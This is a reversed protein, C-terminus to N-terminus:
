DLKGLVYNRERPYKLRKLIRNRLEESQTNKGKITLARFARSGFEMYNSVAKTSFRNLGLKRALQEYEKRKFTLHNKAQGEDGQYM